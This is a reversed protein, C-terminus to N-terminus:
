GAVATPVSAVLEAAATVIGDADLGLQSLLQAQAGHEIFRDPLGLVRVPVTAHERELLECVASGLGGVVTGDEITVVARHRMALEALGVDLPKVFRVDVVSSSIGRASLRDAAQSAAAVMKGAAIFLVERGERRVVARGVEVPELAATGQGPAGGRPYRLAFPAGHEIGTALLRRLEDPDSPASVVMGPVTRLYALDLMGHHSAGDPGTIGARDLVFVIPLKHLAVDCTVQDFARQLFTSYICVVPRLGQMALGAAFTVGHQEAIGVDFFRDPFREAFELLGTSSAMAATIAVIRPDRSALECLAEGFVDTWTPSAKPFSGNGPDFTSVGHFKDVEDAVAPGYGQGKNTVIHVVVPGTIRAADRLAKEIAAVDHGDIPGGYKLGLTEFISIPAVLQKLSNKMRRATEYASHGVAPLARLANGAVDKAAEYKPSLRLQGLNEAIGGVTPAYSRGNDNLIIVMEPALQGINNLAEYAMGGTLSGDGIVCVVKGQEGRLKRATAIGLAYSLGTSAHSNEIVDHESETRSPYGSLGGQQRLTEFRGLRGTIIKHVYAQHGTDFVIADRPSDFVRHLALTLEVVGLNPGLHGGTRAVSTILFERIEASLRLLDEPGLGRLDDPGAIEELLM